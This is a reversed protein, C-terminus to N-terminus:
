SLKHIMRTNDHVYEQIISKKIKFFSHRRGEKVYSLWIFGYKTYFLIEFTLNKEKSTM